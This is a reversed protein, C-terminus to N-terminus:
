ELVCIRDKVSAPLAPERSCPEPLFVVANSVTCSGTSHAGDLILAADPGLEIANPASSGSLRPSGVCVVPARFRIARASGNLGSVWVGPEIEHISPFRARLLDRWASERGLLGLVHRQAELLYEQTTMDFWFEEGDSANPAGFFPVSDFRFGANVLPRYVGNFLDISRLVFEDGDRMLKTASSSLYHVGLFHAPRAGAVPASKGIGAWQGDSALWLPNYKALHDARTSMAFTNARRMDRPFVRAMDIQALTDGNQLLLGADEFWEPISRVINILAGGTGLIEPLENICRIEMGPLLPAWRKIAGEVKDHLYHANV